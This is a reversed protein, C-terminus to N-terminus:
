DNQRSTGPAPRLAYYAWGTAGGLAMLLLMVTFVVNVADTAWVSATVVLAVVTAGSALVLVGLVSFRGLKSARRKVVLPIYVLWLAGMVLAVVYRTEM